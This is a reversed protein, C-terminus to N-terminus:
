KLFCTVFGLVAGVKYVDNCRVGVHILSLGDSIWAGLPLLGVLWGVLAGAVVWMLVNVFLNPVILLMNTVMLFLAAFGTVHDDNNFTVKM